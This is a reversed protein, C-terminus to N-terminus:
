LTQLCRAMKYSMFIDQNIISYIDWLFVSEISESKVLIELSFNMGQHYVHINLSIVLVKKIMKSHDNGGNFFVGIECSFMFWISSTKLTKTKM